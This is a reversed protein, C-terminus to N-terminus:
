AGHNKFWEFMADLRRDIKNVANETAKELRNIASEFSDKRVFVDRNWTEMEHMKTRLASGTEGFERRLSDAREMDSKELHNIDRQLNDIQADLYERIDSNIQSVKWTARAVHAILGLALSAMGFYIGYEEM